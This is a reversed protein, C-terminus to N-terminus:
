LSQDKHCITGDSKICITIVNQTFYVIFRNITSFFIILKLVQCGFMNFITMNCTGKRLTLPESM